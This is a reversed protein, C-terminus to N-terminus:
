ALDDRLRNVDDLTVVRADPHVPLLRVGGRSRKEHRGSLSARALASITAGLSAGNADALQKAARLVDDDITLTTRM